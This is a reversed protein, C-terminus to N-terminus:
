ERRMAVSTGQFLILGESPAKRTGIRLTKPATPQGPEMGASPGPSSVQPACGLLLLGIAWALAIRM